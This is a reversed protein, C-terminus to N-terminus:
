LLKAIRSIRRRIIFDKLQNDVKERLMHEDIPKVLFDSAGLQAALILNDRTGDGTLFIIPTDTYEVYSRIIPVLDFGSLGPMNCDLIFLDPTVMALLDKIKSSDPLSYVTHKDRLLANVSKLITPSDDVTLVVPKIAAASEPNLQYELCEILETDSIPKVLYDAAGLSMAKLLSERDKQSTLFVVPIDANFPDAKIAEITEFGDNIPMNIDLLILDPRFDRLFNFLDESSQAPFVNYRDKLREKLSLLHFMVDDVLIIKRKEKVM